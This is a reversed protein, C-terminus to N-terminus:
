LSRLRLIETLRSEQQSLLDRFLQINESDSEGRLDYLWLQRTSDTIPLKIVKGECSEQEDRESMEVYNLHTCQLFEAGNELITILNLSPEEGLSSIISDLNAAPEATNKSILKEDTITQVAQNLIPSRDNKLALTM